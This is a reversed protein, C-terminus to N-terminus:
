HEDPECRCGSPVYDCGPCPILDKRRALICALEFTGQHGSQMGAMLIMRQWPDVVPTAFDPPDFFYPM